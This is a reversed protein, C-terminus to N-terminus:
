GGSSVTALIYVGVIESPSDLLAIGCDALREANAPDFVMGWTDLDAEAGLRETVMATNYGPGVSYMMWPVGYTNNPDNTAIIRMIEPDLNGYNAIKSTDIPQFVGAQAQRAMFELSPVVLDYGTSGTLMRAEVVENSDFVDYNVDIGTEAEFNPITDEAIYDSWNYFNLTDQAQAAFPMTLLLATLTTRTM